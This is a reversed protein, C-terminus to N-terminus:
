RTLVLRNTEPRGLCAESLLNLRRGNRPELLRLAKDEVVRVRKARCFVTAPFSAAPM